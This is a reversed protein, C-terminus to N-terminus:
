LLAPLQSLDSLDATGGHQVWLARVGAAAAGAIDRDLDNGVMVAESAGVGLAELAVHFIAPDPKGIGIDCSAVVVDFYEELGAVALKRRQLDSTGNTVLALRVGQERLGELVEVAGPYRGQSEIRVRQWRELGGNAFAEARFRPLYERIAALEEGEGAFEAILGDSASVHVRARYEPYPAERQWLARLGARYQDVDGDVAARYALALPEDEPILTEDLDFLVAKPVVKQINLSVKALSQSPGL